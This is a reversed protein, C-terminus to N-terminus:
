QGKQKSAASSVLRSVSESAVQGLMLVGDALEAVASPVRGPGTIEEGLKRTLLSGVTAVGQTSKTAGSAIGGWASKVAQSSIIANVAASTSSLYDNVSPIEESPMKSSFGTEWAESTARWATGANQFVESVATVTESVVEKSRVGESSKAFNVAAQMLGVAMAAMATSSKIAAKVALKSLEDNSSDRLALSTSRITALASGSAAAGPGGKAAAGGLGFKYSSSIRRTVINESQHIVHFFGGGIVTHGFDIVNV